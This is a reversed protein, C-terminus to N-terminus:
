APILAIIFHLCHSSHADVSVEKAEVDNGLPHVKVGQRLHKRVLYAILIDNLLIFYIWKKCYKYWLSKIKRKLQWGRLCWYPGRIPKNELATCPDPPKPSDSVSSVSDRVKDNRIVHTLIRWNPPNSSDMIGRNEKETDERERERWMCEFNGEKTLKLMWELCEHGSVSEMFSPSAM